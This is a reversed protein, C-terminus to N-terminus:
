LDRKCYNKQLLVILLGFIIVNITLIQTLSILTSSNVPCELTILLSFLKFNQNQGSFHTFSEVTWLTQRKVNSFIQSINYLNICISTQARRTCCTNFNLITSTFILILIYTFDTTSIVIYVIFIFM